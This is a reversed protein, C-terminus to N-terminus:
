WSMSVPTKTIEFSLEHEGELDFIAFVPLELDTNADRYTQLLGYPNFAQLYLLKKPANVLLSKGQESKKELPFLNNTGKSLVSVPRCFNQRLLDLNQNM